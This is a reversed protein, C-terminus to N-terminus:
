GARRLCALRRGIEDRAADLDLSGGGVGGAIEKRLKDVKTRETMLLHVANRLTQATEVAKKLRGPDVEGAERAALEAQLGRLDKVYDWFLWEAVAVPDTEAQGKGTGERPPSVPMFRGGAGEAGNWEMDNM